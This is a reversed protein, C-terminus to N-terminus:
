HLAHTLQSPRGTQVAQGNLPAGDAVHADDRLVHAAIIHDDAPRQGLSHGGAEGDEVAEELRGLRHAARQHAGFALCLASGPVLLVQQLRDGVDQADLVVGTQRGGAGEGLQAHVRQHADLHLLRTPLRMSIPPCSPPAAAAPPALLPESFPTGAFQVAEGSEADGQGSLAEGQQVVHGLLGATRDEEQRGDLAGEGQELHHGLVQLSRGDAEVPRGGEVGEAAHLLGALVEDGEHLAEGRRLLAGEVQHAVGEARQEGEVHGHLQLQGLAGLHVQDEEVGRGGVQRDGRLLVALQHGGVVRLALEHLRQDGEEDLHRGDVVLLQLLLQQRQLALLLPQLLGGLHQDLEADLRLRLLDGGGSVGEDGLAQHHVLVPHALLELAVNGEDAGLLHDDLTSRVELLLAFAIQVNQRAVVLGEDQVVDLLHGGEEVAFEHPLNSQVYQGGPAMAAQPLPPPQQQQQQTPMAYAANSIYYGSAPISGGNNWQSPPVAGANASAFKMQEQRMIFEREQDHMRQLAIERQYQLYEQKKKRMIELKQAMQQQRIREAEEAARRMQERHEERLADLAARADRIQSIKDQLRECNTRSENTQQTHMILQSHLNTLNM